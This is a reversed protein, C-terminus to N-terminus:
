SNNFSKIHKKIEDIFQRTSDILPLVADEDFDFLDGYDGKQRLDFLKSYFKGFKKNILGTKIFEMGFKSRSGEHTLTEINNNLLLATVAYFCSYYLRNVVTNWRKNAALILADKFSDEARQLRYIIYDEKKEIKM